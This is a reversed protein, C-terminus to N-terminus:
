LFLSVNFNLKLEGGYGAMIPLSTHFAHYLAIRRKRMERKNINTSEDQKHNFIGGIFRRCFYECKILFLFIRGPIHTYYIFFLMTTTHKTHKNKKSTKQQLNTAFTNCTQTKKNIKCASVMYLYFSPLILGEFLNPISGKDGQEQCLSCVEIRCALQHPVLTQSGSLNISLNYILLLHCCHIQQIIHYFPIHLKFNSM